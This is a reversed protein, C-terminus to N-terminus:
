QGQGSSPLAFGHKEMVQRGQAGSVFRAFQLAERQRPTGKVIAMGQDIPKYLNESVPVWQGGGAQLALSLAVIAVDVNGSQAYQFAQNVNEGLVLKPQVKEWVGASQLAERAAVGYPAHDPNAIAFRRVEPHTLDSVRQVPFPSDARSWLVIFGRAYRISTGPVILGQRELETIYSVNAAAFLDVPAGREIQQALMGTSGFNFIVKVGTQEEFVRGMEQFAPTLDSAASVTLTLKGSPVGPGAAPSNCGLAGALLIGLVICAWNFM